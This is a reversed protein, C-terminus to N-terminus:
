PLFSFRTSLESLKLVKYVDVNVGRLAIKSADGNVKCALGELARIAGPDLRKVSSFDLVLESGPDDRQDVASQLARTVDQGNVNVCVSNRAM